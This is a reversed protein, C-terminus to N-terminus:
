DFTLMRFLETAMRRCHHNLSTKSGACIEYKIGTFTDVVDVGVHNFKIHKVPEFEAKVEQEVWRGRSASMQLEADRIQGNARFKKRDRKAPVRSFV